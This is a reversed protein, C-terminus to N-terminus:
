VEIKEVRLITLEDRQGWARKYGSKRRYKFGRVKVGRMDGIVSLRVTAGDVNPTGVQTKEGGVLLIREPAIESGAEAGCRAVTFTDGEQVRYQKGKMEIIAYM